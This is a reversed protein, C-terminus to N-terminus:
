NQSNRSMASNGIPVRGPSYPLSLVVLCKSAGQVGSGSLHPLPAPTEGAVDPTEGADTPELALRGPSRRSARGVVQVTITRALIM